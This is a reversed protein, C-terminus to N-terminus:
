TTGLFTQHHHWHFCHWRSPLRGNGEDTYMAKNAAWFTLYPSNARLITTRLLLLFSANCMSMPYPEIREDDLCPVNKVVSRKNWGIQARNKNPWKLRLPSKNVTEVFLLTLETEHLFFITLKVIYDASLVYFYCMNLCFIVLYGNHFETPM